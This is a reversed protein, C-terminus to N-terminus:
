RGRARRWMAVLLSFIARARARAGSRRSRLIVMSAAIEGLAPTYPFWWLDRKARGRDVLVFRPRTLADLTLPSNTVGWGSEGQGSWPASPLAGTFAHNNITV